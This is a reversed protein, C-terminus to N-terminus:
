HEQEQSHISLVIQLSHATDDEWSWMFSWCIIQHEAFADAEEKAALYDMFFHTDESWKEFFM